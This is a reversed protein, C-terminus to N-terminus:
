YDIEDYVAAAPCPDACCSLGPVFCYQGDVIFKKSKTNKSTKLAFFLIVSKLVSNM